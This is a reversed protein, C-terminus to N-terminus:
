DMGRCAKLADLISEKIKSSSFIQLWSIKIYRCILNTFHVSQFYKLLIIMNDTHHVIWEKIRETIEPSSFLTVFIFM